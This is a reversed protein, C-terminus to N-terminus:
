YRSLRGPGIGDPHSPCNVWGDSHVQGLPKFVWNHAILDGLMDFNIGLSGKINRFCQGEEKSIAQVWVDPFTELYPGTNLTARISLDQELKQVKPAGYWRDQRNAVERRTVPVVRNDKLIGVSNQSAMRDIQSEEENRLNYLGQPM